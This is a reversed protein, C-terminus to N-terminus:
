IIKTRLVDHRGEIPSIVCQSGLTDMLKDFCNCCIDLDISEGDYKSGYGIKKHLGIHEQEDFETFSNGCVNCIIKGKAM